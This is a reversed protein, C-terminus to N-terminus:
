PENDTQLAYLYKPKHDVEPGKSSNKKSHWGCKGKFTIKHKLEIGGRRQSAHPPNRNQTMGYLYRTRSWSTDPTFYGNHGYTPTNQNGLVNTAIPSTTGDVIM